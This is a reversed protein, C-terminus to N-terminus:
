ASPQPLFRALHNAVLGYQQAILGEPQMLVLPTHRLAAQYSLEPSPSIVLDVALGLQEQIESRSLQLDTRQRNVMVMTVPKAKGFELPAIDQLVSKTHSITIPNPDVVMLAQNCKELIKNIGPFFDNGIDVLIMAQSYALQQIIKEMQPIAKTHATDKLQHSSLLMRVGSRHYILENKVADATIADPQIQLLNTLGDLKEYGLEYGWHGRGPHLEVLVVTANTKQHLSIATNLALTSTGIGGRAALLACIHARPIPAERAASAGTAGKGRRLLARVQGALEKPHTPKTLYGDVGAEYATVKDEIQSKATFMLIPTQMSAPNARIQRAVEYGDMDPMMIDLLVLDPNESKVLQLGHAGDPATLVTYEMRQLMMSVLRLTELDDDIILIKEAM